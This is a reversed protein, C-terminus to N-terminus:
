TSGQEYHKTFGKREVWYSIGTYGFSEAMKKAEKIAETISKYIFRTETSYLLSVLKLRM